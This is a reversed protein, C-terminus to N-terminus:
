ATERLEVARLGREILAHAIARKLEEPTLSTDRAARAAHARLDSPDMPKSWLLAAPIATTKLDARMRAVLRLGEGRPLTLDVLVLEPRVLAALEFAQRSDLAVSTSCQLRTMTARITNMLDIDDSVTLLRQIGDRRGLLRAACADADFPDPFYEVTGLVTGRSGDGAYTFAEPLDSGWAHAGAILALPDLGAAFLNAVLLVPGSPRTPPPSQGLQYRVGPFQAALTKIAELYEPRDDIQVLTVKEGTSGEKEVRASRPSDPPEEGVAEDIELRLPGVSASRSSERVPQELPLLDEPETKEAGRSRAEGAARRAEVIEERAAALESQVVRLQEAFRELERGNEAVEAAHREAMESREQELEALRGRVRENEQRLREAEEGLQARMRLEGCEHEIAERAAVAEELKSRLAQLREQAAAAAALRERLEALESELGRTRDRAASLDAALRGGEERGAGSSAAAIALDDQLKAARHETADLIMRMEISEVQAAERRLEAQAADARAEDLEAALTRLRAESADLLMRSEIAAVRQEELEEVVRELAAKLERVERDDPESMPDIQEM